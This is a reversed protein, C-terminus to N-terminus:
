HAVLLSKCKGNNSDDRFVISSGRGSEEAWSLADKVLDHTLKSDVVCRDAVVRPLTTVRGRIFDSEMMLANYRSKTGSASTAGGQYKRTGRTESQGSFPNSLTSLSNEDNEQFHHSVTMVAESDEDGTGDTDLGFRSASERELVFGWRALWTSYAEAVHWERKSLTIDLPPVMAMSDMVHPRSESAGMEMLSATTETDVTMSCMCMEQMLREVRVREDAAHQDVVVLTDMTRRTLNSFAKMECLIFKSDVQSIVRASRLHEKSLHLNRVDMDPVFGSQSEATKFFRSSTSGTRAGNGRKGGDNVGWTKGLGGPNIQLSPIPLPATEFVPNSWKRLADQAWITSTGSQFPRTGFSSSAHPLSAEHENRSTGCNDVFCISNTFVQRKKEFRQYDGSPINTARPPISPPPLAGSPAYDVESAEFDVDLMAAIWDHDMEFELEEEWTLSEMSPATTTTSAAAESELCGQEKVAQGTRSPQSSKVRAMHAFSTTLGRLGTALRQQKKKTVTQHRLHTAMAQSLFQHRELFSIVVDRVVEIVREEDRFQVMVKAPDACVDFETEPCKLTLVFVPHRERSRRMDLDSQQGDKSFSSSQFLQTIVKPMAETIIPRNNLFIYQHSRNYHGITSMYGSFSYGPVTGSSRVFTLGSSLAQGLVSIIRQQQSDAKKCAFVKTGKAMDTMTFAVSPNILALTEVTRKVRDVEIDIKAGTAESWHRQRVPFKYFLDRVSVTTGHHFRLIKSSPGCFLKDGGKFIVSHAQEQSRPKSVIDLLSMGAIAALAEGRFGYTTITDLDQISTCKSTAYRAGIRSMNASTIGEGNDSVQLSHCAIDIRIEVVTARADIANQILENVCQEFSNIVLSARLEDAVNSALPQISAM